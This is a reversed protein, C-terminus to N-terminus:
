SVVGRGVKSVPFPATVSGEAPPQRRTSAGAGALNRGGVPRRLYPTRQFM